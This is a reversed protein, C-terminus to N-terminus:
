LIQDPDVKMGKEIPETISSLMRYYTHKATDFCYDDEEIQFADLFIQLAQTVKMGPLAKRLGQVFGFQIHDLAQFKYFKPVNVLYNKCKPM